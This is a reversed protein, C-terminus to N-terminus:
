GRIIRILVNFIIVPLSFIFLFLGLVMVPYGPDKVVELMIWPVVKEITLGFKDFAIDRIGEKESITEGGSTITLRFLPDKLNYEKAKIEGKQIIKSHLLTLYFRYPYPPLEFFDTSGPPLIRLPVYDEAVINNDEKFLVYPAYGYNLVHFYNGNFRRAHFAGVEVKKGEKNTLIVRPEHALIGEVDIDIFKEKIGSNIKQIFYEENSWRPKILDGEIVIIWQFERLQISIFFGTLFIMLGLPTFYNLIKWKKNKLHVKLARLINAYGSILFLVFPLYVFPNNKLSIVFFAFAEEM